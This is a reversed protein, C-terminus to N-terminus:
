QVNEHITVHGILCKILLTQKENFENLLLNLHNFVIVKIYHRGKEVVPHPKVMAGIAVNLNVRIAYMNMFGAFMMIALIYRKPVSFISSSDDHDSDSRNRSGEHEESQRNGNDNSMEHENNKAIIQEDRREGVGEKDERQSTQIEVNEM